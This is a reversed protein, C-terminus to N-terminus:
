SIDHFTRNVVDQDSTLRLEIVSQVLLEPFFTGPTFPKTTSVPYKYSSNTLQLDM